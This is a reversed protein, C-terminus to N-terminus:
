VNYKEKFDKLQEKIRSNKVNKETYALLDEWTLNILNNKVESKLIKSKASEAQTKIKKNGNPYLFVVYSNESICILNRLIQYNELFAIKNCYEKKISSLNNSYVNDFKDSHANDPKAKGFGHETYKIEFYIKKGTTTEIYFDFNTARYNKNIKEIESEKEFCSNSYEIEENELGIFKLVLELEKEKLLPFFFNLCMAQSSNLHHFYIHTKLTNKNKLMYDSLSDRYKPLLNLKAKDKPLIHPYDKKSDRWKGNEVTNFYQIKFDELKKKTENQYNM